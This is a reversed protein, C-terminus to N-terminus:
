SKNKLEAMKKKLAAAKDDPQVVAVIMGLIETLDQKKQFVEAPVLCNKLDEYADKAGKIEMAYDKKAKANSSEIVNFLDDIEQFPNKVNAKEKKIGKEVLEEFFGKCKPLTDAVFQKVINIKEASEATSLGVQFLVFDRLLEKRTKEQSSHQPLQIKDLESKVTQATSGKGPENEILEITTRLYGFHSEPQADIDFDFDKNAMHIKNQTAITQEQQVPAVNAQATNQNDFGQLSKILEAKWTSLQFNDPPSTFSSVIKEFQQNANIGNYEAKIRQLLEPIQGILAVELEEIIQKKESLPKAIGMEKDKFLDGILVLLKAKWTGIEFNNPPSRFEAKLGNFSGRLHSQMNDYKAQLLDLIEPIEEKSAERLWNKLSENAM